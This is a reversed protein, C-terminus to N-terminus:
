KKGFSKESKCIKISIKNHNITENLSSYIKNTRIQLLFIISVLIERIVKVQRLMKPQNKKEKLFYYMLEIERVM